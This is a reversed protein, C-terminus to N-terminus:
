RPLAREDLTAALRVGFGRAAMELGAFSREVDLKMAQEGEGAKNRLEGMEDGTGDNAELVQLRLHIPPVVRQFFEAAPDNEEAEAEGFFDEDGVAHAFDGIEREVSMGSDPRVCPKAGQAVGKLNVEVERSIGVHRDPQAEHETELEDFIEIRGIFGGADGFEPAAPMNRERGPQAIVEVDGEASVALPGSSGVAIEHDDHEEAAEPM